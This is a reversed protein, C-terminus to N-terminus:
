TFYKKLHIINWSRPVMQGEMTMLRYSQNGVISEVQYPGEWNYAFKGALRNKTNQFFKRPILDGVQLTRVKLNKNYSRAVTQRYSAMRIQANTRIDLSSAMEVQNRDEIICGYKHTPVRVESPIVAGAGFVLSFPTQGTAVKPTTRDAWLVLPLEEAWKGGREELKKKLNKVIIKNNSKAQGNSQPNRPTSKQLSINWRACFAETKNGIFQSGNDCIIESPIDFKLYPGALSKRFLVGDILIFRSAKMRFSRVKKKDAPLIDNQLWDQYLKRWDPTTEESSISCLVGAEQESKLISPELVHVIPITSIVGAKFTAGMTALADVEANQDRPIQKNNFTAFRLTLEKAIDLYAMMRSDRAEYSDNVHNVILKSDSCVAQVILDGQPSKLDLGVEAGRANSAGDVHLEWVQEGNDEKLNLIEQEAQTQLAPCFNSVFDALAQSKITTYPEFKLDYGSLHVSWKAM